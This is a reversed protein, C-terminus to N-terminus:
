YVVTNRLTKLFDFDEHSLHNVVSLLWRDLGEKACTKDVDSLKPNKLVQLMLYTIEVSPKSSHLM